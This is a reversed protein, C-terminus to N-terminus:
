PAYAAAVSPTALAQIEARTGGFSVPVAMPVTLAASLRAVRTALEAAPNAHAKKPASTSNIAVATAAKSIAAQAQLRGAARSIPQDSQM